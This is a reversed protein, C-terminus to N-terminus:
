INIKKKSIVKKIESIYSEIEGPIGYGFYTSINKLSELRDLINARDISDPSTMAKKLLNEFVSGMSDLYKEDIDGYEKSFLIIQEIYTMMLDITGGMDGSASEYSSIAKKAVPIRLKEVGKDPFFEQIIIKRYSELLSQKDEENAFRTHIFKKNDSNLLYLDHIM